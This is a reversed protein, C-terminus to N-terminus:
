GFVEAVRRLGAALADIERHTNYFALSARITAPVGFRDMIPQACHHGTRVAIGEQDLITGVDHAHVGEMVFSLISAKHRATGVLKLGPVASLVDTGYVLLEREHEGVRDLGVEDLYDIAAGLGVVGAIDPTGAEFKHPVDNYTTKEFTVSKIMEGGGQYPPMHNLLEYKGYVVGVGTPGFMKHSSFTYFECDLARVDVKMHPVAQAGDVLVAAGYRHALDILESLPTITGLANSVQTVAVIKTRDSLLCRFEEVILEGTDDIPAVHLVAGTQECLLQWPVINSHHELGTILVEDGERLVSRGYSQAVLNIGETASRVFVIEQARGANIFRRANNRAREYLDTAQLSLAHVGRHINANSNTYYATIADIVAQPKQSTAANDLYVLPKGHVRQGLIPFDARVREVDLATRRGLTHATSM